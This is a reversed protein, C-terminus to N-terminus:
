NFPVYVNKIIDGSNSWISVDNDLTTGTRKWTVVDDYTSEKNMGTFTSGGVIGVHTGNYSIYATSGQRSLAPMYKWYSGDAYGFQSCRVKVTQTILYRAEVGVQCSYFHISDYTPDGVIFNDDAAPATHTWSKIVPTDHEVSWEDPYVYAKYEIENTSTKFNIRGYFFIYDNDGVTYTKSNQMKDIKWYQPIFKVTGDEYLFFPNQYNYEGPTTGYGGNVSLVGILNGGTPINNPDTDQYDCAFIVKTTTKATGDFYAGMYYQSASVLSVSCFLTIILFTIYFHKRNSM